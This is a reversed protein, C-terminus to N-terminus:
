RLKDYKKINEWIYRNHKYFATSQKLSIFSLISLKCTAELISWFISHIIPFAKWVRRVTPHELQEREERRGDRKKWTHRYRLIAYIRLRLLKSDEQPFLSLTDRLAWRPLTESGNPNEHRKFTHDRRIPILSLRAMALCGTEGARGPRRELADTLLSNWQWDIRGSRMLLCKATESSEPFESEAGSALIEGRARRRPCPLIM